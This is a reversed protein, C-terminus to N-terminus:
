LAMTLLVAGSNLYPNTQIELKMGDLLLKNIMVNSFGLEFEKKEYHYITTVFTHYFFSELRVADINLNDVKHYGIDFSLNFEFDQLDPRFSRTKSKLLFRDGSDDSSNDELMFHKLFYGSVHEIAKGIEYSFGKKSPRRSSGAVLHTMFDNKNGSPLNLGPSFFRDSSRNATATLFIGPEFGDGAEQDNGDGAHSLSAYVVVVLLIGFKKLVTCNAKKM